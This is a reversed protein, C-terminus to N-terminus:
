APAGADRSISYGGYAVLLGGLIASYAGYGLFETERAFKIILVVVVFVGAILHVQAWPVFPDALRVALLRAVVIQVIMILTLVVAAVGYAPYPAQVGSRTGDFEINLGGLDVSYWPLVLLDVILLVGGALVIREGQSLASLRARM